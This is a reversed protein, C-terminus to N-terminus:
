PSCCRLACIHEEDDNAFATKLPAALAILNMPLVMESENFRRFRRRDRRRRVAGGSRQIGKQVRPPPRRPAQLSLLPNVPLQLAWSRCASAALTMSALVTVTEASTHVGASEARHGSRRSEQCGM